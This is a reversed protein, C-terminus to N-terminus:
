AYRISIFIWGAIMVFNVFLSAALVLKVGRTRRAPPRQKVLWVQYGLSALAVLFFVPELRELWYL